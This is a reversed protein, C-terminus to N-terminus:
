IGKKTDASPLTANILSHSVHETSHQSNRQAQSVHKFEEETIRAEHKEEGERNKLSVRPKLNKIKKKGM